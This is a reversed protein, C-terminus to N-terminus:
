LWRLNFIEKIGSLVLTPLASIAIIMLLEKGVLPMTGLV